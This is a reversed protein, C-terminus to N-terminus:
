AHPNKPLDAAPNKGMRKMLTRYFYSPDQTRVFRATHLGAEIIIRDGDHLPHEIAGDGSIVAEHEMHVIITVTSGRALVIAREMSLHPAVPILLINKLDPPLIPGGAALAYATSGTPTAIILGDAMYTTLWGGDIHTELRVARVVTGRSVVVENLVDFSQLHQDDRWVETHLMMRQEIWYDGAYVRDFVSRWETPQVEALFGLRGLNVGLVPVGAEATLRGAHLMWGDGGLAVVMDGPEFYHTTLADKDTVIEAKIGRARVQDAMEEALPRSASLRPHSLLFMRRPPPQDRPPLRSQRAARLQEDANAPKVITTSM